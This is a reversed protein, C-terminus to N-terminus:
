KPKVSRVSVEINIKMSRAQDFWICFSKRFRKGYLCVLTSVSKYGIHTTEKTMQGKSPMEESICEQNM